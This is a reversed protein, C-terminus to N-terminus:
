LIREGALSALINEQLKLMPEGPENTKHDQHNLHLIGHVLLRRLEEDQTVKFYAANKELTELSIVIDGPLCRVGGKGDDIKEGLEFSLVDTAEDKNRYQSNLTKIYNDGCFLVSLDWNHIDLEKLVKLIFSKAKAKWAPLPVEEASFAVKNV